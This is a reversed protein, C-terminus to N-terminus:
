GDLASPPYSRNLMWNSGNWDYDWVTSMQWQIAGGDRAGQWDREYLIYTGSIEYVIHICYYKRDFDCQDPSQYAAVKPVVLLSVALMGVVAALRVAFRVRM